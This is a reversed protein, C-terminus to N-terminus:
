DPRRPDRGPDPDDALAHLVAALRRREAHDLSPWEVLRARLHDIDPDGSSVAAERAAVLRQAVEGTLAGLLGIGSIMLAGALIRGGTTTPSIDGYGVTTTTVISWWLGDGFGATEPEIWTLLAGGLCIVAAGIVAILTVGTLGLVDRLGKTARALIALPRLLRLLRFPRFVDLPLAAVLEIRHRRVFDSRDGAVGLRVLYDIAFWAWIAWGLGSAMPGEELILWASAVAAGVLAMEYVWRVGVLWAPAEGLLDVDDDDLLDGIQTRLAVSRRGM